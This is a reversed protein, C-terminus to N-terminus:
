EGCGALAKRAHVPRSGHRIARKNRLTANRWHGVTVGVKQILLISLPSNNVATWMYTTVLTALRRARM